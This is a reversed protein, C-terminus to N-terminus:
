SRLPVAKRNVTFDDFNYEEAMNAGTVDNGSGTVDNEGNVSYRNSRENDSFMM